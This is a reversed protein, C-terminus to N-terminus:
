TCIFMPSSHSIVNVDVCTLGAPMEIGNTGVSIIRFMAFQAVGFSNTKKWGQAAVLLCSLVKHLRQEWSHAQTHEAKRECAARQFIEVTYIKIYIQIQMLSSMSLSDTKIDLRIVKEHNSVFYIWIVSSYINNNISM